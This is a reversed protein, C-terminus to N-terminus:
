SISGIQLYRWLEMREALHLVDYRVTLLVADNDLREAWNDSALLIVVRRDLCEDLLDRLNSQSRTCQALVKLEALVIFVGGLYKDSPRELLPSDEHVKCSKPSDNTVSKGEGFLYTGRGM